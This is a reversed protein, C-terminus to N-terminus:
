NSKEDEDDSDEDENHTLVTIFASAFTRIIQKRLLVVLLFLLFYTAATLLKGLMPNGTLQAYFDALSFGLFLLIAFGALTLILIYVIYSLVFSTKEVTALQITRVRVDIYETINDTLKSFIGM